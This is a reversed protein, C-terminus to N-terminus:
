NFRGPLSIGTAHKKNAKGGFFLPPPASRQRRTTDVFFTGSALAALDSRDLALDKLAHDDLASLERQWARRTAYRRVRRWAAGLLLRLRSFSERLFQARLRRARREYCAIDLAGTASRCLPPAATDPTPTTMAFSWLSNVSDLTRVISM